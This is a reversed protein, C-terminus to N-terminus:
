LALCKVIEYVAYVYLRCVGMCVFVQAQFMEANPNEIKDGPFHNDELCKEKCQNLFRKLYSQKDELWIYQYKSFTNMYNLADITANRVHKLIM